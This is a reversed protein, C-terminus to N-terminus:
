SRTTAAKWAAGAVSLDDSHELKGLDREARALLKAAYGQRRHESATYVNAVRGKGEPSVMVQRAAGFVGQVVYVYRWSVLPGPTTSKLVQIGDKSARGKEQGIQATKSAPLLLYALGENGALADRAEAILTRM